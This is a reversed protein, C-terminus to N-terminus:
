DRVRRISNWLSNDVLPKRLSTLAEKNQEDREVLADLQLELLSDLPVGKYRMNKKRNNGGKQTDM